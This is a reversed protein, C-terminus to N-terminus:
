RRAALELLLDEVREAILPWAFRQARAAGAEGLRRALEPDLLLQSIADAVAVHDTPDVLLGTEGHVVADRTGGVDGGVVPLGRAGAELYTIGFGEGGVGTAPVRSPMAFVHARDLLADREADPVAGVLRVHGDLAHATVLQALQPRFPGDGVVLWEVDPVRARILPLARALVDHGKYRELLRAVTILTPRAAPARAVRQPLDVGPTIIRVRDPDAGAAIALRRTHESIAVVADPHALASSTLRPRAGIELAYLYQLIPARMLGRALRAGPSVVIHASVIVHPRFRLAEGPLRANLLAISAQRAGGPGGVRRVDLAAERDVAAAGEQDLTLVRPRVRRWGSVLRHVLVQIGGRAPPFDPTVVLVRSEGAM